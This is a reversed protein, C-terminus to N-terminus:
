SFLVNGLEELQRYPGKPTYGQTPPNYSNSHPSRFSDGDRNFETKLYPHNPDTDDIESHHPLYM